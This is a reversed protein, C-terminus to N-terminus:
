VAHKTSFHASINICLIRQDKCHYESNPITTGMENVFWRFNLTTLHSDSPWKSPQHLQPQLSWHLHDCASTSSVQWSGEM